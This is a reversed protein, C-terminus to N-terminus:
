RKCIGEVGLWLLMSKNGEVWGNGCKWHKVELHVKFEEMDKWRCQGWESGLWCQKEDVLLTESSGRSTKLSRKEYFNVCRGMRRRAVFISNKFLLYYIAMRQKLYKLKKVDRKVIIDLWVSLVMRRSARQPGVISPKSLNEPCEWSIKVWLNQIHKKCM